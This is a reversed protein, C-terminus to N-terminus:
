LRLLIKDFGVLIICNRLFFCRSSYIINLSVMSVLFLETPTIKRPFIPDSDQLRDLYILALILSCPTSSMNTITVANLRNLSHGKHSESFIEAAYHAFPRSVRQCNAMSSASSPAGGVYLTKRIRKLFEDHPMIQTAVDYNILIFSFM